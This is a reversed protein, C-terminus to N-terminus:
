LFTRRADCWRQTLLQVGRTNGQTNAPQAPKSKKTLQSFEAHQIFARCTSARALETQKTANDFESRCTSTKTAKHPSISSHQATSATKCYLLLRHDKDAQKRQQVRIPVYKGQPKTRASQATRRQAQPVVICSSYYIGSSLM